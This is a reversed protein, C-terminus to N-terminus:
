ELAAGGAAAATTDGTGTTAWGAAAGRGWTGSATCFAAAPPLGRRLRTQQPWTSAPARHGRAHPTTHMVRRQRTQEPAPLHVM